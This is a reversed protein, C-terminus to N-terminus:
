SCITLSSFHIGCNIPSNNFLIGHTNIHTCTTWKCWRSRLLNSSWASVIEPIYSSISSSSLYLLPFLSTTWIVFSFLFWLLQHMSWNSIEIRKRAQETCNQTLVGEFTEEESSGPVKKHCDHQVTSPNSFNYIQFDIIIQYDVSIQYSIFHFFFFFKDTHRQTDWTGVKCSAGARAQQQPNRPGAGVPLSRNPPLQVQLLTLVEPCLAHITTYFRWNSHLQAVSIDKFVSFGVKLLWKSRFYAVALLM